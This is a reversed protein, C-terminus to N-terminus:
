FPPPVPTDTILTQDLKELSPPLETNGGPIANMRLIYSTIDVYEALSLSGPAGLPMIKMVETLFDALTRSRRQALFAANKLSPGDETGGLDDAHCAGCFQSFIKRGRDAQGSTYVGDWITRTAQSAFSEASSARSSASLSGIYALGIGACM